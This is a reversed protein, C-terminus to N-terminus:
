LIREIYPLFREGIAHWTYHEMILARAAKGIARRQAKDQLLTVITEAMAEPTAATIFHIGEQGYEIGRVALPTTVVTKGRAMAELIKSQIGSAIRMPAVVLMARDLYFSPDSVFGTVKVGPLRSLRRVRPGPNAGVIIFEVNKWYQRVLPFIEKAFFIVADENPYYDMKGLFVIWPEENDVQPERLVEEKVGTPFVVIPCYKNDESIQRLLYARDVPSSIFALDFHGLVYKEYSLLRHYDLTYLWKRIGYIWNQAEKYHLSIADVFDIVKPGQFHYAYPAMTIYNCYILDYASANAQMWRQIHEFEYRLIATKGSAIKRVSNLYLAIRPIPFAFVKQFISKFKPDSMAVRVQSLTLLDVRYHNSLLKATYYIRTREGGIVPYPVQSSLVLIKAQKLHYTM